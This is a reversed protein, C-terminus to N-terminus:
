EEIKIMQNLINQSVMQDSISQKEFRKFSFNLRGEYEVYTPNEPLRGSLSVIIVFDDYNVTIGKRNYPIHKGTIKSLCDALNQHGIVSTWRGHNIFNTFEEINMPYPIEKMNPDRKMSESFGNCLYVTLKNVEMKDQYTEMTTSTQKQALSQKVM